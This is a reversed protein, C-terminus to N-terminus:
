SNMKNLHTSMKSMFIICYSCFKLYIIYDLKTNISKKKNNHMHTNSEGVENINSYLIKYIGKFINLIEKILCCYYYYHPSKLARHIIKREKNIIIITSWVFFMYLFFFIM